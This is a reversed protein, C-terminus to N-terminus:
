IFIFDLKDSKIIDESSNIYNYNDIDILNEDGNLIIHINQDNRFLIIKEPISIVYFDKSNILDYLLDIDFYMISANRIICTKNDSLSIEAYKIKMYIPNIQLFIIDNLFSKVDDEINFILYKM